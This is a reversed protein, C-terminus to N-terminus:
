DGLQDHLKALVASLDDSAALRAIEVLIVLVEATAAKDGHLRDVIAGATDQDGDLQALAFVVAMGTCPFDTLAM